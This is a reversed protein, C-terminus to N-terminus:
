IGEYGGCRELFAVWGEVYAIWEDATGDFLGGFPGTLALPWTERQERLVRAMQRATARSATHPVRPTAWTYVSPAVPVGCAGHLAGLIDNAAINCWFVDDPQAKSHYNIGM